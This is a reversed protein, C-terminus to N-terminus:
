IRDIISSFRIRVNVLQGITQLSIDENPFYIKKLHETFNLSSSYHDISTAYAAILPLLKEANENLRKLPEGGDM